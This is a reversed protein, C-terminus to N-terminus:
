PLLSDPKQTADLLTTDALASAQRSTITAYHADTRLAADPCPDDFGYTPSDAIEGTIFPIALISDVALQGDPLVAAGDHLLSMFHGTREYFLKVEHLAGGLCAPNDNGWKIPQGDSDLPVINNLNGPSAEVPEPVTSHTSTM